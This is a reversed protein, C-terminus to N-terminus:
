QGSLELLEATRVCLEDTPDIYGDVIDFHNKHSMDIWEGENGAQTWADFFDRSQRQLEATEGGGASILIKAKSPKINYHPSYKQVDDATLQLKPQLFNYRFPALDFLGSLLVACKIVDDPIGYDEEWDTQMAMMALHAGASHGGLVIRNRDGGFSEANHWLWAISSRIQRVIEGMSVKPAHAYDVVGVPYGLSTLGAATTSFEKRTLFFWYGGHIFLFIPKLEGQYEGHFIDIAEAKTHGYPVDLKCDLEGRIKEGEIVWKELYDTFFNPATRLLDYEEDLAEQDAFNRYLNNM